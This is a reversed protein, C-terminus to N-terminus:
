DKCDFGFSKCFNVFVEYWRPYHMFHETDDYAPELLIEGDYRGCAVFGIKERRCAGTLHEWEEPNLDADKAVALWNLNGWYDSAQIVGSFDPGVLYRRDVKSEVIHVILDDPEVTDIREIDLDDDLAAILRDPKLGEADAIEFLVAVAPQDVLFKKFIVKTATETVEPESLPGRSKKAMTM